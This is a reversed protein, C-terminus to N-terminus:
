SSRAAHEVIETTPPRAQEQVHRSERTEHDEHAPAVLAPKRRADQADIKRHVNKEVDDDLTPWVSRLVRSIDDIELAPLRVYLGVRSLLQDHDNRANM